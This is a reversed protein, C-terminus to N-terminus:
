LDVEFSYGISNCESISIVDFEDINDLWKFEKYPLYKSMTWGYLNNMYLYNIFTSPKEPDYDNMYKNNAKAYKKAIFSIGGRLGKEILLYM